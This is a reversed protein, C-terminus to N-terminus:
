NEGFDFAVISSEATVLLIPEVKELVGCRLDINPVWVVELAHLLQESSNRGM